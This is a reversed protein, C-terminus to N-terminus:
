VRIEKNNLNDWIALEGRSRAINGADLLNDIVEVEDWYVFGDSEDTWRGVLTLKPIEDDGDVRNLFVAHGDQKVTIPHVGVMYGTDYEMRHLDGHADVMYTGDELVDSFKVPYRVFAPM